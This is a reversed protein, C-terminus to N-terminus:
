YSFEIDAGGAGLDFSELRAIRDGYDTNLVDVLRALSKRGPHYVLQQFGGGYKRRTIIATPPSPWTSLLIRDVTNRNM